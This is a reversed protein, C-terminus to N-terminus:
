RRPTSRWCGIRAHREVGAQELLSQDGRFGTNLLVFDTAHLIAVGDVPLDGRTSALVVHRPTIEVPLTEPM